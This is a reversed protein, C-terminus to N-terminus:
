ASSKEFPGVMSNTTYGHIVSTFQNGRLSLHPPTGKFGAHM